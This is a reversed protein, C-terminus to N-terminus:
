AAFLMYVLPLPYALGIILMVTGTVREAHLKFWLYIGTAGLVILGFSVLGLLFAWVNLVPYDYKLGHIAHISALMGIFGEDRTNVIAVGTDKLYRVQYATGPRSINCRIETETVQGPGRMQGRLGHRGILERALAAPNVAIEPAIAIRSETPPSEEFWNKHSFKISSVGFMVVFLVSFLGILLHTNRIWRYM